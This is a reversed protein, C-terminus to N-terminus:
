ARRRCLGQVDADGSHQESQAITNDLRFPLSHADFQVGYNRALIVERLCGGYASAYSPPTSFGKKPRSLISSPLIRRYAHKLVGKLQKGDYRVHEPLSFAFEILRRSLFPVRVELSHAMSARDVKTLIDDPLYTHFDLYQLRTLVPLDLRWHQRYYWCDDYDDDIQLLRAYDQKRAKTLGGMLRVYLSLPDTTAMAAAGVVKRRLTGVPLMGHARDLWNSPGPLSTAGMRLLRAYRHYWKYGGFLEDGGDGSLAVTVSKRALCCVHRTPFASTDAFPEDYLSKLQSLQEDADAQHFTTECHDTAFQEAIDRAFETESHAADDFGVSFTKLRDVHDAATAVVISSDMGGSLFSGVPVDAVLQESVSQQILDSLEATVDATRMVSRHATPLEWYRFQQIVSQQGVDFRLCTAPPLKHVNRYLSKPAPIYGYTLFDYLATNDIRLSLDGSLQEIAKLESAFGFSTGDWLYYLPKIGARDRYLLIQDCRRDYIAIAFMGDMRDVFGPGWELYANLVVETDSGTRFAHGRQELQRKLLQYGYIEGNFVLCVDGGPSSMPQDAARTPDIVALRAFGFTVPGLHVVQQADPGRHTLSNAALDYRWEPNNGGVLGCM